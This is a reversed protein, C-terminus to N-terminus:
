IGKKLKESFAQAAVLWATEDASPKIDDVASPKDTYLSKLTERRQARSMGQKMLALEVVNMAKASKNEVIKVQNNDLMGTAFGDSIATQPDLWTENTMLKEIAKLDKGTRSVYINAMAKDFPVLSDATSRLDNQNGVAIVWANHIMIFTGDGMLIEDGAMAIVSAASAALGLIKITVKAPHERLMNYMAIGEFFDGGGSNINVEIDKVGINRLAGALRKSTWGTGDWTEGITGYISITAGSDAESAQIEPNFKEMIDTRIDFSMKIDNSVEAKVLKQNISM